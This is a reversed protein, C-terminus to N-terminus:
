MVVLIVGVFLSVVIIVKPEMLVSLLKSEQQEEIAYQQNLRDFIYEAHNTEELVKVLSIMKNDFIKSELMNQNLSTGSFVFKEVKELSENLPYFDIM